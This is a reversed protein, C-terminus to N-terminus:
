LDGKDLALAMLPAYHIYFMKVKFPDYSNIIEFCETISVDDDPALGLWRIMSKNIESKNM